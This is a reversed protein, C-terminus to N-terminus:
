ASPACVLSASDPVTVLNGSGNFSLAGGFRGATTWTAGTITGNNGTGSADPVSTGSGQDMSYAAVLGNAAYAPATVALGSLACTLVIAARVARRM